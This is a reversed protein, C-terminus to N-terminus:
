IMSIVMTVRVNISEPVRPLPEILRYIVPVTYTEDLLKMGDLEWYISAISGKQYFNKKM